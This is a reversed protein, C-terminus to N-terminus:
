NRKGRTRRIWRASEWRNLSSALRELQDALQIVVNRRTSAEDEELFLRELADLLDCLCAIEPGCRVRV